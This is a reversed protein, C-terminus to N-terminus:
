VKKRRNSPPNVIRPGDVDYSTLRGLPVYTVHVAETKKMKQRKDEEKKRGRRKKKKKKEGEKVEWRQKYDKGGNTEESRWEKEENKSDNEGTSKPLDIHGDEGERDACPLM